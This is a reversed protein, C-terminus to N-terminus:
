SNSRFQSEELVDTCKQVLASSAQTKLALQIDLSVRIENKLVKKFKEKTGIKFIDFLAEDKKKKKCETELYIHQQWRHAIWPSYKCTTQPRVMM